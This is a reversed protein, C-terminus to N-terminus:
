LLTHRSDHSALMYPVARGEREGKVVVGKGILEQLESYVNPRQKGTATALESATAKGGLGELADLVESQVSDTVVGWEDTAVQWTLHQGGLTVALEIDELDRGVVRLVSTAAGRQKYLGLIVDPVAAKATSGLIADIPNDAATKNFHDILCTSTSTELGIGQIMAMIQTVEGVRDQDLSAGAARSFTDLGAFRYDKDTLTNGLREIGGEDFLPWATEFTVDADEPWGQAKMRERLRRASDELCIMLVPGQEVTRGLVKGGTAVAGAIQLALISKGVKPRGGLIALGEPLIDPVIWQLPAFETAYLEQTTWSTKVAQATPLHQREVKATQGKMYEIVDAPDAGALAKESIVEGLNILQRSVSRKKITEAYVGARAPTETEAMLAM